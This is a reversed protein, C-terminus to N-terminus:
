SIVISLELGFDSEGIFLILRDRAWDWSADEWGVDGRNLAATVQESAMETAESPIGKGDVGEPPMESSSGFPIWRTENALGTLSWYIM